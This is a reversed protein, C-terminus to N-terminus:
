PNFGYLIYAEGGNRTGEGTVPNVRPDALQAGLAFDDLGDGDIDGLRGIGQGRGRHREVMQGNLGMFQTPAKSPNGGYNIEVGHVMVPLDQGADGGGLFDGEHVLVNNSFRDGRRGVIILGDLDDTGLASISIDQIGGVTAPFNRTDTSSLIIYVLGAHALEDNADIVGDPIGNRGTVDDRVGDLDRDLGPTDLIDVSDNPNGDFKPTANPAAIALDSFGDGDIDGINRVNFGFESGIEVGRIRAGERRELLGPTSGESEIPIGGEPSILDSKGFVIIIEGTGGNGDPNGIVVDGVGDHNFDFDAPVSGPIGGTISEGFRQESGLAERLLVGSLREPDNVNRKLDALDFNNELTEARRFVIYAAGDATGDADVDGLPAGILIDVRGDTNFDPIGLVNSIQEGSDGFIDLSNTTDQHAGNLAAQGPRIGGHSNGDALYQHPQPPTGIFGYDRPDFGIDEPFQWLRARNALPQYDEISYAIGGQERTTGDISISQRLPSTVLLNDDSQTISTGYGENVTEGIVRCGILSDVRGASTAPAHNDRSIDNWDTEAEPAGSGSIRERYYGSSLFGITPEVWAHNLPILLQRALDKGAECTPDALPDGGPPVAEEIPTTQSCLNLDFSLEQFLDCDTDSFDVGPCDEQLSGRPDGPFCPIPFNCLYHDALRPDFGFTPEVLTEQEDDPDFQLTSACGIFNPPGDPPCNGESDVFTLRDEMWSSGQCLQGENPEPSVAGETASLAGFQTDFLQGVWDLKCRRNAEDNSRSQLETNRSSVIVIGGRTFQPYNTGLACANELSGNSDIMRPGDLVRLRQSFARPFGFVM